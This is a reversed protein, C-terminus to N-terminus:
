FHRIFEQNKKETPSPTVRSWEEDVLPKTPTVSGSRRWKPKAMKAYVVIGIVVGIVVAVVVVVVVVVTTVLSSSAEPEPEATAPPDTPLPRRVYEFVSGAVSGMYIDPLMSGFFVVDQM